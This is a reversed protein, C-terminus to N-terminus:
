VFLLLFMKFVTKIEKNKNLDDIEDITIYYINANNNEFIDM